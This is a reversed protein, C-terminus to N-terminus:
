IDKPANPNLMVPEEQPETAAKNQPKTRISKKPKKRAREEEKGQRRQQARKAGRKILNEFDEMQKSYKSRISDCNVESLKIFDDPLIVEIITEKFWKMFADNKSRRKVYVAGFIKTFVFPYIMRNNLIIERNQKLINRERKTLVSVGGKKVTQKKGQLQVKIFGSENPAKYVMVVKEVKLVNKYLRSVGITFNKLDSLSTTLRYLTHFSSFIARYRKM